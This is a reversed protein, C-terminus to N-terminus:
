RLPSPDISNQKLTSWKEIKLGKDYIDYHTSYFYYNRLLILCKMNKLM